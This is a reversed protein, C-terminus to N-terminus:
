TLPVGRTLGHARGARPFLYRHGFNSTERYSATHYLFQVVPRETAASANPMGRHLLRYDYLVADGAAVVADVHCSLLEAAAGFGAMKPSTHTGPWFQTFGVARDLDILPVFM